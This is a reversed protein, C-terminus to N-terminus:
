EKNLHKMLSNTPRSIPLNTNPFERLFEKPTLARFEQDKEFVLHLSQYSGIVSGDSFLWTPNTLNGSDDEHFSLEAIIQGELDLQKIKQQEVILWGGEIPTASEVGRFQIPEKMTAPALLQLRDNNGSRWIASNATPHWQVGLIEGEWVSMNTQQGDSGLTARYISYRPRKPQSDDSKDNIFQGIRFRGDYSVFPKWSDTSPYDAQPIEVLTLDTALKFYTPQRQSEGVEKTDVFRQGELFIDNGKQDSFRISSFEGDVAQFKAGEKLGFYGVRWKSNGPRENTNESYSCVFGSNWERLDVFFGHPMGEVVHKEWRELDVVICTDRGTRSNYEWGSVVLFRGDSSWISESIRNLDGVLLARKPNDLDIVRLKRPVGPNYDNMSAGWALVFKGNPSVPASPTRAEGGFYTLGFMQDPWGINEVLTNRSIANEALNLRVRIAQYSDTGDSTEVWKRGFIDLKDTATRVVHALEFRTSQPSEIKSREVVNGFRGSFESEGRSWIAVYERNSLELQNERTWRIAFDGATTKTFKNPVQLRQERRTSTDTVVVAGSKSKIAFMRLDPSISIRDRNPKEFSKTKQRSVMDWIELTNEEARSGGFTRRCDVAIFQSDHGWTAGIGAPVALMFKGSKLDWISIQASGSAFSYTAVFRGNPSVAGDHLFEGGSADPMSWMEGSDLRYASLKQDFFYIIRYGANWNFSPNSSRISRLLRVGSPTIQWVTIAYLNSNTKDFERVWSSVAILDPTSSSWKVRCIQGPVPIARQLEGTSDFIRLFADSTSSAEHIGAYLTGDHNPELYFRGIGLQEITWAGIGGLERPNQVVARTFLATSHDFGADKFSLSPLARVGPVMPNETGVVYASAERTTDAWALNEISTDSSESSVGANSDEVNKSNVLEVSVITRAGRRIEITQSSFVLGGNEAETELLYVGSPLPTEGIKIQYDRGSIPDHIRVKEGAIKVEVSPDSTSVVLTGKDTAFWTALAMASFLVGFLFAVIALKWSRRDTRALPSSNPSSEVEDLLQILTAASDVRDCPNKHLLRQTLERLGVPIERMEEFQDMEVEDGAVSMMTSFLNTKKFPSEGSLMEVLVVGVSFLDSRQDLEKGTVQEPSMYSPTGIVTGQCTIPADSETSENTSRTLGFDLLVVDGTKTLWLNDPKIDRHLLKRDHVYQLGEALQRTIEIARDSPVSGHADLMSRLSMGELMPMVFYPLGRQRGVELVTVIRESNMRAVERTEREFRSIAEADFELRPNLLKICVERDLNSDVSRFVLGMGGSALIEIIRFRGIKGLEAPNEAPDLFRSLEDMSVSYRPVLNEVREVLSELEQDNPTSSGAMRLALLLSDDGVTGDTNVITDPNALLEECVRHQQDEACGQLFAEFDPENM